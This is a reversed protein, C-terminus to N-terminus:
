LLRHPFFSPRSNSRTSPTLRLDQDAVRRALADRAAKRVEAVSPIAANSVAWTTSQVSRLEAVAAYIRTPKISLRRAIMDIQDPGLDTGLWTRAAAAQAETGYQGAERTLIIWDLETLPKGLQGYPQRWDIGLARLISTSAAARQQDFFSIDGVATHAVVRDVTPTWLSQLASGGLFVVMLLVMFIALLHKNYKRFFKMM